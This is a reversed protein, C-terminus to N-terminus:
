NFTYNFQKIEDAYKQEIIRRSDDDYYEQYPRKNKRTVNVYSLSKPHTIGREKMFAYIDEALNEYRIYKVTPVIKIDPPPKLFGTLSPQNKVRGIYQVYESFSMANVKRLRNWQWTAWSYATGRDFNSVKQLTFYPWGGLILRKEIGPEVLSYIHRSHEYTSVIRDFPNRITILITHTKLTEEDIYQYKLLDSLMAHKKSVIVKRQLLSRKPRPLVWEGGYNEILYHAVATCGRKPRGLFIFRM